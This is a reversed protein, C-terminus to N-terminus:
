RDELGHWVRVIILQDDYLRYRIVYGKAGFQVPWERFRPDPDWLRGTEPFESLREAAKLILDVAKDAAAPSHPSIFHYLRALDDRAEPLWQVHAM